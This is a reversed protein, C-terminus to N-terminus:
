VERTRSKTTESKVQEGLNILLLSSVQMACQCRVGERLCGRVQGNCQVKEEM